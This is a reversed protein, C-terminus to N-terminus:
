CRAACMHRVVVFLFYAPLLLCGIRHNVPRQASLDYDERYQQEKRQDPRQEVFNTELAGPLSILLLKGFEIRRMQLLQTGALRPRLKQLHAAYLKTFQQQYRKWPREFGIEDFLAWVLSLFLLVSFVVIQGSLSGDVVPDPTKEQGSVEQKDDDAM